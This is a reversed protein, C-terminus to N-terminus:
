VCRLFSGMGDGVCVWVWWWGRSVGSVSSARMVDARANTLEMKAYSSSQRQQSGARRGAQRIRTLSECAGPPSASQHLSLTHTLKDITVGRRHGAHTHAQTGTHTNYKHAIGNSLSAANFERESTIEMTVAVWGVCVGVRVWIVGVCQRDSFMRDAFSRLM